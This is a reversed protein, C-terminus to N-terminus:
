PCVSDHYTVDADEIRVIVVCKLPDGTGEFTMAGTIGEFNEIAAIGDRVCQRDQELDGTIAGCNGLAEVLLRM